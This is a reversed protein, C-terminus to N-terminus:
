KGDKGEKRKPKEYCQEIPLELFGREKHKPHACFAEGGLYHKCGLCGVFTQFRHTM